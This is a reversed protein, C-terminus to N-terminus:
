GLSFFAAPKIFFDKVRYLSITDFSEYLRKEINNWLLKMNKIKMIFNGEKM